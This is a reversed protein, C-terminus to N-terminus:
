FTSRPGAVSVVKRRRRKMDRVASPDDPAGQAKAKKCLQLMEDIFKQMKEIEDRYLFKSGAEHSEALSNTVMDNLGRLRILAEKISVTGYDGTDKHEWHILGREAWWRYQDSKAMDANGVMLHQM